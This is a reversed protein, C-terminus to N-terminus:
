APVRRVATDLAVLVSLILGTALVPEPAWTATLVVAAASPFLLRHVGHERHTSLHLVSVSLLYRAVPVTVAAAAVTSSIAAHTEAADRGRMPRLWTQTTM